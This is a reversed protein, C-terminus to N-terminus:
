RAAKKSAPRYVKSKGGMVKANLRGPKGPLVFALVKAVDSKKLAYKHALQEFTLPETAKVRIKFPKSM